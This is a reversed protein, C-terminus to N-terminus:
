LSQWEADKGYVFAKVNAQDQAISLPPEDDELWGLEDAELMTIPESCAFCPPSLHCRCGGRHEVLDERQKDSLDAEIAEVMAVEADTYVKSM